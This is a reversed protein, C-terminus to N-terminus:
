DYDIYLKHLLRKVVPIHEADARNKVCLLKAYTEGLPPPWAAGREDNLDLLKKVLLWRSGERALTIFQFYGCRLPPKKLKM